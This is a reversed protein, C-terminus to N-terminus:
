NAALSEQAPCGSLAGAQYGRAFAADRDAQTAAAFPDFEPSVRVGQGALDDVVNRVSWVLQGYFGAPVAGLRSAAVAAWAGTLCDAQLALDADVAARRARRAGLLQLAVADLTGRERQLHEAAVRGAVLAIGLDQQRQLRKGLAGLFTLDFAATGTEPCYFPGSVLSGACPSGTAHSFFVLRASRYGRGSGDPFGRRWVSQADAFAAETRRMLADASAGSVETAVSRAPHLRGWVWTGLLATLSLTLALAALTGTRLIPRRAGAPDRAREM